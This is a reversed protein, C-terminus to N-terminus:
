DHEVFRVEGVPKAIRVVHVPYTLVAAAAGTPRTEKVHVVLGGKADTEIRVIEVRFGASPRQGQAILLIADKAFDVPPLDGRIADWSEADGILRREAKPFAAMSGLALAEYPPLELNTTRTGLDTCDIHRAVICLRGAQKPLLLIKFFCHYEDGDGSSNTIEIRIDKGDQVVKDLTLQLTRGAFIGIASHKSFDIDPLVDKPAHRAWLAMWTVRDEVRVYEDETIGGDQGEWTRVVPSDDAWAPVVALLLACLVTPKM